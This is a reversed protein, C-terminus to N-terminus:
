VHYEVVPCAWNCRAGSTERNVDGIEYGWTDDIQSMRDIGLALVVVVGDRKALRALSAALREVLLARGDAAFFARDSTSSRDLKM